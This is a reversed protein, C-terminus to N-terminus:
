IQVTVDSFKVTTCHEVCTPIGIALLMFHREFTSFADLFPLTARWRKTPNSKDQFMGLSLGKVRVFSYLDITIGLASYPQSVQDCIAM